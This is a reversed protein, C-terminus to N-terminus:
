LYNTRPTTKKRKKEMRRQINRTPEDQRQALLLFTMGNIISVTNLYQKREGVRSGPRGGFETRNCLNLLLTGLPKPSPTLHVFLFIGAREFLSRDSQFPKEWCIYIYLLLLFLFLANSLNFFRM